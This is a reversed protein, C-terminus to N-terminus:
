ADTEELSGADYRLRLSAQGPPTANHQIAYRMGNPLVGFRVNPDAPIDSSAQPWAKFGSKSPSKSLAAAPSLARSGPTRWLTATAEPFPPTPFDM